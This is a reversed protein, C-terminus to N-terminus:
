VEEFGDVAEGCDAGKAPDKRVGGLTEGEEVACLLGGIEEVTNL